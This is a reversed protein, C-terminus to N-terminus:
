ATESGKRRLYHHLYSKRNASDFKESEETISRILAEAEALGKKKDALIDAWGIEHAQEAPLLEGTMVLQYAEKLGCIELTRGLGGLAPLIGFTSEPQGIRAGKECIRFHSNVAIESGSGICFGTVISVVPFPLSHLFTFFHKQRIHSAPFIGTEENFNEEASREALAKVDAGVSFHRGKGRIILGQCTKEQSLAEIKEMIAEYYRFFSETMLNNGNANMTLYLIGDQEDLLFANEQNEPVNQEPADEQEQNKLNM